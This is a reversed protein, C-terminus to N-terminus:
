YFYYNTNVGSKYFKVMNLACNSYRYNATFTDYKVGDIPEIYIGDPYYLHDIPAIPRNKVFKVLKGIDNPSVGSGSSIFKLLDGDNWEKFEKM